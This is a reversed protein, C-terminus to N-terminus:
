NNENNSNRQRKPKGKKARFDNERKQKKDKTLMRKILTNEDYRGKGRGFYDEKERNKSTQAKGENENGQITERWRIKTRQKQLM